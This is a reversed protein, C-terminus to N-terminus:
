GSPAVLFGIRLSWGDAHGFVRATGDDHERFVEEMPRWVMQVIIGSPDNGSSFSFGCNAEFTATMPGDTFMGVGGLAGCTARVAMNGFAMTPRLPYLQAGLHVDLVGFKSDPDEPVSIQRWAINSRFQVNTRRTSMTGIGLGFQSGEIAQGDVTMNRGLLGEFYPILFASPERYPEEIIRVTIDPVQAESPLASCAVAGVVCALVRCVPRNARASPSVIRTLRLRDPGADPTGRLWHEVRRRERKEGGLANM